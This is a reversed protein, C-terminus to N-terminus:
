GRGVRKRRAVILGVCLIAAAFLIQIGMYSFVTGLDEAQFYEITQLAKVYWYAPLFHAIKIVTDSLLEMPVFVGCLFAMGLSIVNAMLSIVQPKDTLKSVLFTIALAVSMMCVANAIYLGAKPTLMEKPYVATAGAVFIACIVIGTVIVGLVIEGNMRVFKYSSCTIRDRVTKKDLALLTGSIGTVCMAIFIWELYVFFYYMVGLPQGNEKNAFGVEVSANVAEAAKNCAETETYGAQIYTNVVALYSNLTQEFLNATLTNPIAFVEVKDASKADAFNNGFGSTIKLVCDVNRAYLEDQITEKEDNKIEELNHASELYKILGKSLESDDYDFVAFDCKAATYNEITENKMVQPLIAGFLVGMFIGIYMFMIHKNRNLVKFYLKFVQM